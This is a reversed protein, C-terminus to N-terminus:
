REDSPAVLRMRGERRRRTTLSRHCQAIVAYVLAAHDADDL